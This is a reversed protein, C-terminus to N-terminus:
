VPGGLIYGIGPITVINRPHQPDDELKHRLRWMTVRLLENEGRYGKGWVDELVEDQTVTKGAHAVLYHLLRYETPSLRVEQGRVTVRRAAFDVRLDGLKFSTEKSPAEALHTRRLVAEVRALLEQASFPKAVYDDAGLHLGKVKDEEAGRATLMIIPVVSVERIRRCVEFGDLGPLMVDLIVLDLAQNALAALAEEGTAACTVHYDAAELNFRVLRLYRPEDDVVLIRERTV